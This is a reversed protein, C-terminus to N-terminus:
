HFALAGSSWQTRHLGLPQWPGGRHSGGDQFSRPGLGRWAQWRYDCDGARLGRHCCDPLMTPVWSFLLGLLDSQARPMGTQGWCLCRRWSGQSQLAPPSKRAVRSGIIKLAIAGYATLSKPVWQGRSTWAIQSDSAMSDARLQYCM